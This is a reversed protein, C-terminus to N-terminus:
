ITKLQETEPDFSLTSTQNGDPSDPSNSILCTLILKGNQWSLGTIATELGDWDQLNYVSSWTGGSSERHEVSFETPTDTLGANWAGDDSWIHYRTLNSELHHATMEEVQTIFQSLIESNEPNEPMVPILYATRSQYKQTHAWDVANSFYLNKGDTIIYSFRQQTIEPQNGSRCKWLIQEDQYIADIIMPDSEDQYDQITRLQCPINLSVKTLFTEVAEINEIGDQTFIVPKAESEESEDGLNVPMNEPLSELPAFGFPTEKTYISEGLQFEAYFTEGGIQKVLRYNGPEPSAQLRDLSCTLAMVGGPQLMYGISHFVTNEQFKLDEWVKEDKWQRGTQRQIKYEEGFEIDQDTHNEILYIYHTLSPDYVEREMKISLHNEQTSAKSLPESKLHAEAQSSGSLGSLSQAQFGTSCGSSLFLSLSLSLLIAIKFNKNRNMKFNM